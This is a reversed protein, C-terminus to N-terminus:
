NPWQGLNERNEIKIAGRVSWQDRPQSFVSNYQKCLTEATFAQDPNLKGTSQDIFPGIQSKTKQKSRAFSFFFKPNTKMMM